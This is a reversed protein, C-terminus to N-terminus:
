SVQDLALDLNVLLHLKYPPVDTYTSNTRLSMLTTLIKPDLEALNHDLAKVYQLQVSINFLYTSINHLIYKISM